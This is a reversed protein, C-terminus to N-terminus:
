DSLPNRFCDATQKLAQIQRTSLGDLPLVNNTAIENDLLFDISVKYHASLKVLIPLSPMREGTEYHGIMACSVGILDAVQKRSLGCNMRASKLKRGFNEFM